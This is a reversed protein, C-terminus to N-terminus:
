KSRIWVSISSMLFNMCNQSSVMNPLLQEIYSIALDEYDDNSEDNFLHISEGSDHFVQACLRCVDHYDNALKKDTALSNVDGNSQQLCSFPIDDSNNLANESRVGTDYFSEIDSLSVDNKTSQIDEVTVDFILPNISANSENCKDLVPLTEETLQKKDSVSSKVLDSYKEGVASTTSTDRGAPHPEDVEEIHSLIPDTDAITNANTTIVNHLNQTLINNHFITPIPASVPRSTKKLRANHPPDLFCDDTFHESCIFYKILNNLSKDLLDM